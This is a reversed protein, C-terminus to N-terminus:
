TKWMYVAIVVVVTCLSMMNCTHRMYELLFSWSQSVGLGWGLDGGLGSCSVLHHVNIDDLVAHGFFYMNGIMHVTGPMSWHSHSPELKPCVSGFCYSGLLKVMTFSGYFWRLCISASAFTTLLYVVVAMCLQCKCYLYKPLATVMIISIHSQCKNFVFFLGQWQWVCYNYLYM